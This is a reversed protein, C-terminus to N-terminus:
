DTTSNVNRQKQAVLTRNSAIYWLCMEGVSLGNSLIRKHSDPNHPDLHASRIEELLRRVEKKSPNFNKLLAQNTSPPFNMKVKIRLGICYHGNM